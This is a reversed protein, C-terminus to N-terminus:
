GTGCRTVTRRSLQAVRLLLTLGGGLPCTVLILCSACWACSTSLRYWAFPATRNQAAGTGGCVGAGVSPGSAGTTQQHQRWRWWSRRTVRTAGFSQGPRRWAGSIRIPRRRTSKRTMGRSGAFTRPPACSSGPRAAVTSCRTSPSAPSLECMTTRICGWFVLWGYYGQGNHCSVLPFLNSTTPTRLAVRRGLWGGLLADDDAGLAGGSGRWVANTRGPRTRRKYRPAYLMHARRMACLSSRSHRRTRTQGCM